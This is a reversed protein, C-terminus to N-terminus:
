EKFQRLKSVGFRPLRMDHNQGIIDFDQFLMQFLCYIRSQSQSIRVQFHKTKGPTSGVAVRHTKHSHSAAGLLANIISSKGVNPFGVMGFKILGKDRTRVGVEGLIEDALCSFCELLEGRSLVPYEPKVNDTKNLKTCEVESEEDRTCKAKFELDIEAQANRASFFVAKISKSAFFNGWSVRCNIM